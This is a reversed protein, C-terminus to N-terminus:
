QKKKEKIYLSKINKWRFDIQKENKASFGKAKMENAIMKYIESNRYKKGDFYQLCKKEDMIALMAVTEEHSWMNRQSM